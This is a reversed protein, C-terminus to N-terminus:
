VVSPLSGVVELMFYVPAIVTFLVIVILAIATFLPMVSLLTAVKAYVILMAGDLTEAGVALGAAPVYVEACLTVSLVAVAPASM